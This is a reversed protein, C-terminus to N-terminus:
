FTWRDLNRIINLTDAFRGGMVRFVMPVLRTVTIRSMRFMWCIISTHMTQGDRM